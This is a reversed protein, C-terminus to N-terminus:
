RAGERAAAYRATCPDLGDIALDRRALGGAFATLMGGAIVTWVKVAIVTFAIIALATM